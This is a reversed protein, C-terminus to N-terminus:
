SLSQVEIELKDRFTDNLEKEVSDNLCVWLHSNTLMQFRRLNDFEDPAEFDIVVPNEGKHKALLEKLLINEEAKFEKLFHLTLCDRRYSLISCVTGSFLLFGTGCLRPVPKGAVM